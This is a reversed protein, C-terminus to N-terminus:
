NAAKSEFAGIDPAKGTFDDNFNPLRVGADVGPTGPMLPYIGPTSTDFQPKGAIGNKEQGDAAAIRGFYLDYDYSNTPDKFADKVAPHTEDRLFFINNRSTINIQYKKDSTALLGANGGTTEPLGFRPPPQLMTNHFVFISGKGWNPDENGLKVLYAGKNSDADEKPGKRASNLVNRFIYIPGLSSTACGVAGYVDDFRNGWVRVNMDAGEMEAGDDYVNSIENNYVDSDRNPFGAYSFNKVEGMGDNFKHQPDSYIKNGRIVLRGQSGLFSIGQPGIPHSSKKAGKSREETWSNSNSRPHHLQNNQVVIRELVKSRSFVAADLNEGFGDSSIRGWGSIDCNEVVVDQVDGLEIGNIKANKLTLGRLIVFSANVQINDEAEGKGDFVAGPEATYVVYGTEKSGGETIVIPQPMDPKLTVTRAVPFDDNWTTSKVIKETGDKALRLKFEYDTAPKLNVVSGRYEMSHEPNGPHDTPDFWLPLADKWASEGEARYQVSCVNESAGSAPKWYLGVCEFTPVALPEAAEAAFTPSAAPSLTAVAFALTLLLKM